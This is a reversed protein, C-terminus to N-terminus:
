ISSVQSRVRWHRVKDRTMGEDVVHIGAEGFRHDRISSLFRGVAVVSKRNVADVLEDPIAALLSQRNPIMSTLDKTTFATTQETGSDSSRVDRFAEMVQWLFAEKQASGDDAQSTHEDFNELFGIIGAHHLIAGITRSWAEFSGLVQTEAPPQGAAYWARVITLLAQMLQSRNEKVHSLLNPHRFGTRKYPDSVKANLRIWYTRRALDEGLSINNGTVIFTSQQPLTVTESRGLIRAQYTPSTLASALVDSDLRTALNDFVIVRRCEIFLSTLLKSWEESSPRPSNATPGQMGLFLLTVILALLTKGTGPQPSDIMALPACEFHARLLVTLLLAIYNARDSDSTFPFDIILDHILEVAADTEFDTPAESVMLQSFVPDLDLYIETSTDYGMGTRVTGEPRVIPTQSLARLVPFADKTSCMALFDQTVEWPPPVADWRPEGSRNLSRRRFNASRALYSRLITADVPEVMVSDNEDRVVRVLSGGRIFLVPPDNAMQLAQSTEETVDRMDRDNVEIIPLGAHPSPANNNTYNEGM